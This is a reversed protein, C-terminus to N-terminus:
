ILYYSVENNTAVLQTVAQLVGVRTFERPGTVISFDLQQQQQKKTLRGRKEAEKEEEMEKWTDRPIAWHNIPINDKECREKYVNYHQRIHTRSSSNGGKHFAKRKGNLTIFKEDARTWLLYLIDLTDEDVWKCITCWRGIVTDYSDGVTKFKVTVRDTMITLLDLTSDKKITKEQLISGRQHENM